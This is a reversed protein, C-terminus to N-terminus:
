LEASESWRVEHGALMFTMVHDRLQQRSLGEGSETDRALLLMSLLDTLKSEDTCEELAKQKNSIVDHIMKNTVSLNRAFKRNEESPLHSNLWPLFVRMLSPKFGYLLDTFARCGKQEPKHLAETNYGFGCESIIDMTMRSMDDGVDLDTDENETLKQAWFDVLEEGHKQIAPIMNKLFSSKFAGLCLKRQTLHQEGNLSILGDGTVRTFLRFLFTSKVYNKSHTVMIHKMADAEAVMLRQQGLIHNYRIMGSKMEKVWKVYVDISEGGFIERFNGLFINGIPRGPIKRLPTLYPRLIVKYFGYSLGFIIGYVLVSSWTVAQSLSSYVGMVSSIGAESM